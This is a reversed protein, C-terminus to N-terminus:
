VLTVTANNTKVQNFEPHEVKQTNINYKLGPVKEYRNKNFYVKHNRGTTDKEVKSVIDADFASASGGRMKGDVTRQYIFWFLKGDYKKRIDEDLEIGGLLRYLKGYSDTFVIENEKFIQEVNEKTIEDDGFVAIRSQAYPSLYQDRKETFLNSDPHEELSLFAVDYNANAYANMAQFFYRTKGAGQEADLTVVVSQKTKKEISGIFTSLEGVPTYVENVTRGLDNMKRGLRRSSKKTVASVTKQLPTDPTKEIVPNVVESQVPIDLVSAAADGIQAARKPQITSITAGSDLVIPLGLGVSKRRSKSRNTTRSKKNKPKPTQKKPKAETAEKKTNTSRSKIRRYKPIGNKDKNLIHDSAEQAKSSARFFLRNDAQMKKVLNSNWGKLYAASNNLTEFLIGSEACLFVAGMEAVLEEKAYEASRPGGPRLRDLRKNAGTSHILEHFLVSYYSQPNKFHEIPTQEVTDTSPRYLPQDGRFVIKPPNPYNKVIGEAIEIKLAESKNANENVPIKDWKIGTIDEANFVNYYKLIPIYTNALREITWGSRKLIKLKNQNKKIWSLFKPKSYSYFELKSKDSNLQTYGYLKTFYVVRHGTAGKKIKGKNKEIQNFTLFYPNKWKKFVLFGNGDKDRKVEFNLLFFNIGRYGKKSEYNTAEKGDSLGTKEWSRQWPLLNEKSITNIILDTVYQYIDDPSVAKGLGYNDAEAYPLQSIGHLEDNTAGLGSLSLKEKPLAVAKKKKKAVVWKAKKSIEIKFIESRLHSKLLRNIRTHVSQQKEKIALSALSVLKERKVVKGDLENFQVVSNKM